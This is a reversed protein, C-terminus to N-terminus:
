RAGLYELYRSEAGKAGYIPIIRIGGMGADWYRLAPDVPESKGENLITLALIHTSLQGDPGAIGSKM